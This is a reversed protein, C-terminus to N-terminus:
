FFTMNMTATSGKRSFYKLPLNGNALNYNFSKKKDEEMGVDFTQVNVFNTEPDFVINLNRISGFGDNTHTSYKEFDAYNMVRENGHFHQIIPMSDRDPVPEGKKAATEMLFDNAYFFTSRDIKMKRKLVRNQLMNDEYGWGWFNPFGGIREFDGALISVIGGLAYTFGYFHKVIGPKTPYDLVNAEKPMCDVDNFVLTINKYNAPYMQKVAIFGINKMAGRNFARNDCQHIFLFRYTWPVDALVAPMHQNFQELHQARDRYPVIFVVLPDLPGSPKLVKSPDLPGSPKLVKFPNSAMFIGIYKIPM